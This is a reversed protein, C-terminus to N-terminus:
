SGAPVLLRVQWPACPVGQDPRAFREGSILDGLAPTWTGDGTTIWVTQELPLPNAVAVSRNSGAFVLLDRTGKGQRDGAVLRPSVPEPLLRRAEGAVGELVMPDPHWVIRKVGQNSQYRLAHQASLAPDDDPPTIMISYHRRRYPDGALAREPLVDFRIQRATLAAFLDAYPRAWRNPDGQGVCDTTAVVAVAPARDFRRLVDRFYLIDLATHAVAEIVAPDSTLSPYRSGSGDRLDRWGEILGLRQGDIAHVWMALATQAAQAEPAHRMRPPRWGTVVAGPSEAAARYLGRRALSEAWSEGGPRDGIALPIGADHHKPFGGTLVLWGINCTRMVARHSDLSLDDAEPAQSPQDDEFGAHRVLTLGLAEARATLAPWRVSAVSIHGPRGTVGFGMSALLDLDGFRPARQTISARDTFGFLRLGSRGRGDESADACLADLDPRLLHPRFGPRLPPESARSAASALWDLLRHLQGDPMAGNGVQRLRYEYELAALAKFACALTARRYPRDVWGFFLGDILDSGGTLVRLEQRTREITESLQALTVAEGAVSPDLGTQGHAAVPGSWCAVAAVALLPGALRCAGHNRSRCRGRRIM